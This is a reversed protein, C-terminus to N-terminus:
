VYVQDSGIYRRRYHVNRPCSRRTQLDHRGTYFHVGADQSGPRAPIGAPMGQIHEGVFGITSTIYFLM